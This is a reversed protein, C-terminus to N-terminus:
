SRMSAAPMLRLVPISPIRYPLKVFFSAITEKVSLAQSKFPPVKKPFVVIVPTRSEMKRELTSSKAARKVRLTRM